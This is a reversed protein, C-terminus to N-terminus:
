CGQSSPSGTRCGTGRFSLLREVDSGDDRPDRRTAAGADDYITDQALTTRTVANTLTGSYEGLTDAHWLEVLANPIPGGTGDDVATLTLTLPVGTRM